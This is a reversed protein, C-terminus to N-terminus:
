ASAYEEWRKSVREPYQNLLQQVKPENFKHLELASYDISYRGLATLYLADVLAKEPTAIFVNNEKHFDFFYEKPVKTFYFEKDLITKNLSRQVCTSEIFDQQLQTTCGYYALASTLSVYSPVQIINTIQMIETDTLYDWRERLLYVNRKVRVLLGNSTYRSCLVRASEPQIKLLEAVENYSFYLSKMCRLTQYIM